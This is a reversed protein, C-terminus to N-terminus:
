DCIVLPYAIARARLFECLISERMVFIIVVKAIAQLLAISSEAGSGYELRDPLAAQKQSNGGTLM